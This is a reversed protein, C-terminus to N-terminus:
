KAVGQFLTSLGLELIMRAVDQVPVGARESATRIKALQRKNVPMTVPKRTTRTM